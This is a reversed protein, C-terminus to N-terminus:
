APHHVGRKRAGYQTPEAIVNREPRPWARAVPRDSMSRADVVHISPPHTPGRDTRISVRLMFRVPGKAGHLACCSLDAAEPRNRPPVGSLRDVPLERSPRYWNMGCPNMEALPLFRTQVLSVRSALVAFLLSRIRFNPFAIRRYSDSASISHGRTLAGSRSILAQGKALWRIRQSLLRRGRPPHPTWPRRLRRGCPAFGQLGRGGRPEELVPATHATFVVSSRPRKSSSDRQYVTTVVGSRLLACMVTSRRSSTCDLLALQSHQRGYRM